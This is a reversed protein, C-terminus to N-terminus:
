KKPLHIKGTVLGYGLLALSAIAAFITALISLINSNSGESDSPTKPTTALKAAVKTNNGKSSEDSKTVENAKDVGHSQVKEESKVPKPAETETVSEEKVTNTPVTPGTAVITKPVPTAIEAAQAVPRRDGVSDGTSPKVPVAVHHDNSSNNDNSHDGYYPFPTRAPSDPNTPNTPKDEKDASPQNNDAPKSTGPKNTKDDVSHNGETPSVPTEPKDAKKDGGDKVTVTLVGRAESVGPSGDVTPYTHPKLGYDSVAYYDVNYDENPLKASNQDAVHVLSESSKDWIWDGQNTMKPLVETTDDENMKILFSPAWTSKNEAGAIGGRNTMYSTVLLTDSSGEVPVAYYSYTSTRWDAPVSATLVVGSGNLPRYKGRLSDSVFGLMVVDDGVAKRAAVTGEADTSKNIRSATFLYYKGGMKVVSPREVEDTVMHSTVLPTYLEAVSPNKENDDLKLIGISGNAWSALNYLHKNNVINLFSKLNFADDGGYNSWKYIQKEGQYNEDGTNSEFILYRSGNDEIIHPDRLCYNDTRDPNGDHNHDDDFTSMFKPYSQYHYNDGGFLIHDNEVSKIVVEDNEVALNLTASALQQWNLKGGSTDNKTYYLQISGDSNVTASGSWQQDDELANYGFIPGANKWHTFDNDGYKRYLLYIHNSNKNPAGAMSIVLQYGNWNSVVGSKADQVPWSDWVDIEEKKMTQADVTNFAPMNIITDAKFYPVALKSDQKLFSAVIDKLNRYTLSTGTGKIADDSFDVKNLAKIEEETLAVIQESTMNDEVISKIRGNLKSLNANAATNETLKLAVEAHTDASESSATSTPAEVATESTSAPTSVTAITATPATPATPATTDLSSTVVTNTTKDEVVSPTTKSPQTETVPATAVESHAVSSEVAESTTVSTATESAVTLSATSTEPITTATAVTPATETVQDAKVQTAGLFALTGVLASTAGVTAVKRISYRMKKCEAQKPAVTKSQSNVISDM